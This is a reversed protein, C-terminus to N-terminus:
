KQFLAKRMKKHQRLCKVFIEKEIMVDSLGTHREVFDNNGSIYRYIVEAKEQPRPTSHSTMYGNQECFKIYTKQKCITDHAMKMTDWIEVGYPFFYRQKSKTIYRLTTNLGFYDYRANHAMIAKVQYKDCLRKLEKKATFISVMTRVGSKLEKEYQPLKDAYYASKMLDKELAYIDYIVLDLTEYVNGQKDIVAAGLDYCLADQTTNTGEIDLVIYYSKRRDIKVQEM